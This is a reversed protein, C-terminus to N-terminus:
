AGVVHVRVYVCATEIFIGEFITRAEVDVRQLPKMRQPKGALTIKYVYKIKEIRVVRGALLDEKKRFIDSSPCWNNIDTYVKRWRTIIRKKKRHCFLKRL